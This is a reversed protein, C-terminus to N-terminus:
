RYLFIFALRLLINTLSHLRNFYDIVIQCINATQEIQERGQLCFMYIAVILTLLGLVINIPGFEGAATNDSNLLLSVTSM